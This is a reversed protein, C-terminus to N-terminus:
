AKKNRNQYAETYEDRFIGRLGVPNVSVIEIDPYNWQAFEKLRRWPKVYASYDYVKGKVNLGKMHQGRGYCDAGVIYIKDPHTWLAFQFVCYLFTGYSRFPSVSLDLPFIFKRNKEYKMGYIAPDHSDVYITEVGERDRQYEPILANRSVDKRYNIAFFKKLDHGRSFIKEFLETQDCWDAVFMYDYPIDERYISDNVGMYICDPMPKYYALTPGTGTIVVTKGKYIGKYKPFIKQHQVMAPMYIDTLMALRDIIVDTGLIHRIRKQNNELFNWFKNTQKGLFDNM